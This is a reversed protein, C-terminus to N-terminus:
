QRPHGPRQRGERQQANEGQQQAGRADLWQALLHGFEIAAQAPLDRHGAALAQGGSEVQGLLAMAGGLRREVAEAGRLRALQLRHTPQQALHVLPRPAAEVAEGGSQAVLLLSQSGDDARTQLFQPGGVVRPQLGHALTAAWTPSRL